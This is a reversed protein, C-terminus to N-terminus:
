HESGLLFSLTPREDERDDVVRGARSVRGGGTREVYGTVYEPCRVMWGAVGRAM